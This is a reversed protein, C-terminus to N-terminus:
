ITHCRVLIKSSIKISTNKCSPLLCCISLTITTFINVTCECMVNEDFFGIYKLTM